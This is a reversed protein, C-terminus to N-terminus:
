CAVNMYAILLVRFNTLNARTTSGHVPLGSTPPELGEDLRKIKPHKLFDNQNGKHLWIYAFSQVNVNNHRVQVCKNKDYECKWCAHM